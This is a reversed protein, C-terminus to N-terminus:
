RAWQTDENHRQAPSCDELFSTVLNSTWLRMLLVHPGPFARGAKIAVPATNKLVPRRNAKVLDLGLLRSGNVNGKGTEKKERERNANGSQEVAIERKHM